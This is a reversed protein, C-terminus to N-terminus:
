VREFLALVDQSDVVGDGSFDYAAPYDEVASQDTHQFLANVDPFDLKGNANLDEHLGDGDLDQPVTGGVPDLDPTDPPTSTTPTSDPLPLRDARKEALYAKFLEGHFDEGGRLTWEGQDEDFMAPEWRPDFCWVQWHVHPHTEFFDVFGEGENSTTGKLFDQGEDDYGFETMFVPVNEAPKGFYESLPRLGAHAYVHGAYALNDGSFEHEDAWWTWQTWRPSGIIIPNKPAHERITDVWPQAAERWTLWTQEAEESDPNAVDVGGGWTNHGPYPAIPENYVEFLVHSDAAFEEAMVEWFMHVEDSLTEDTYLLQSDQHRHYDVICYAGQEGCLDVVPRLHDEVYTEVDSATMEGPAVGGHGQGLIDGPQCPIRVIRNYWGESEDLAWRTVKTATVHYRMDNDDLRAPDAINVGRLTVPNGEPDKILNSDSGEGRHLWPTPIGEAASASGVLGGGAALLGAGATTRLFQRRTSSTHETM